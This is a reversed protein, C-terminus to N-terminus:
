ETAAVRKPPRAGVKEPTIDLIRMMGDIAPPTVTISTTGWPVINVDQADPGRPQGVILHDLPADVFLVLQSRMGMIPECRHTFGISWRAAKIDRRLVELYADQPGLEGAPLYEKTDFSLYGDQGFCFMYTLPGFFSDYNLAQRDRSGPCVYTPLSCTDLMELFRQFEEVKGNETLDGTILAFAAKSENVANIVDRLIDTSPRSHRDSGIRTGALHAVLYYDPFSPRVYVSRPNQDVRDGIVAEIAYEGPGADQAMTCRALVTEGPLDYWEVELTPSAESGALRLSAKQSLTVDFTHGPLVIVPMGNNPTHILGLTGDPERAFAPAAVVLLVALWKKTRM